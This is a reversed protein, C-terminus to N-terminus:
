CELEEEELKALEEEAGKLLEKLREVERKQNEIDIEKLRKLIEAYREVTPIDRIEKTLESKEDTLKKYYSYDNKM